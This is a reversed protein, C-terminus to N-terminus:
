TRLAWRTAAFNFVWLFITVLPAALMVPMAGLDVTVFMGAVFLPLNLTMSAGYRAFSIGSRGSAPFTWASHLWYGMGVVCAFSILSSVAYHLGVSDGAIVLINHLLACAVSVAFYRCVIM